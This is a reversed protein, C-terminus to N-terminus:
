PADTVRRGQAVDRTRRALNRVAKFPLVLFGSFHAIMVIIGFVGAKTLATKVYGMDLAYAALIAVLCGGVGVIVPRYMLLFIDWPNIPTDRLLYRFVPIRLACSVVSFAIAVGEPGWKAGILFGATYIPAIIAAVKFQRQALGMSTCVWSGAVNTSQILAGVALLRFITVSREWGPGLVIRVLEPAAAFTFTVAFVVFLIVIRANQTFVARFQEIDKQVRSLSPITVSKIPKLFQNLPLTLLGYAKTYFGLVAAGGFYGLIINDANRSLFHFFQAGTLNGGFALMSWIGTGRRPLGPVWRTFVWALVMSVGTSTLPMAVLAWYGAGQIALVIAVTVGSAMATLDKAVIITFRMQRKLIAMHQVSCGSLIFTVSIALTVQVLEPEGYFWAVFPALAMVVLMLLVSLSLNVWFLTSVQWHNVKDRQVTAMSLGADKFMELFGIMASVMAILGFDAPTLLRALVATSGLGLVFRVAQASLTIAGGRMTRGKLDARLHDTSFMDNKSYCQESTEEAKASERSAVAQHLHGKSDKM